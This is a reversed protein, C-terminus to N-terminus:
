LRVTIRHPRKPRTGWGGRLMESVQEITMGVTEPYYRWVLVGAAVCFVMFAVMAGTLTLEGVLPLFTLGVLFNCAWNTATAIGSGIARVSLPFLESQQWPVNGLGLAYGAVYLMLGTLIVRPWPGRTDHQKVVSRGLQRAAPNFYFGVATPVLAIVMLTISWLLMKRRGIRDIYRFAVITFVFNTIAISLSTLVPSKFGAQAFITASFYMLSNQPRGDASKSPCALPLRFPRSVFGCLQQAGQLLCAITLARRNRPVVFLDRWLPVDVWSTTSCSSGGPDRPGLPKKREDEEEAIGREIARLVHNALSTSELRGGYIKYLLLRADDARGHKVLWRPSEPLFALILLQVCAPAAGLGVMWRWGNARDSLLYGVVYAVVQGLTISLCSLTM